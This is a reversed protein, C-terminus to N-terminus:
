RKSWCQGSWKQALIKEIEGIGRDIDDLHDRTIYWDGDPRVYMALAHIAFAAQRDVLACITPYFYDNSAPGNKPANAKQVEESGYRIRDMADLVYDTVDHKAELNMLIRELRRYLDGLVSELEAIRKQMDAQLTASYPKPQADIAKKFSGPPVNGNMEDAWLKNLDISM